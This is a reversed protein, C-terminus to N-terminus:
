RVDHKGIQQIVEVVKVREGLINLDKRMERLEIALERLSTLHQEGFKKVVFAWAGFSASLIFGIIQTWPVDLHAIEEPMEQGQYITPLDPTTTTRTTGTTM